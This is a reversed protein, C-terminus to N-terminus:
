VGLHVYQAWLLPQRPYRDRVSVVAEHLALAVARENAPHAASIRQYFMEAMRVSVQDDAPWLAGIVHPFGAVQFGSALHIVEDVLQEARNEATSCASLYAIRSRGLLAQSIDQVTLKDAIPPSSPQEGPRQLILYSNSPDKIESSGHCAFHAMDCDALHELVDQRSPYDLPQVSHTSTLADTIVSLEETVSKLAGVPKGDVNPTTPMLAVLLEPKKVTLEQLASARKRAYGLARITPTYSSIIYTYANAKSGFLHDGAAHFPLSSALGTGIWWVRPLDTAQPEKLGLATLIPEVCARWLWNLFERCLSNKEGKERRRKWRTPEKKIWDQVEEKKLAPLHLVQISSPSVLIADSRQDAVNVVVIPGDVARSQLEEATPGRFFSEQGPLKRIEQLVEDLEKVQRDRRSVLDQRSAVDGISASRSIEDRLKEFRAAQQPYEAALESIDSRDEILLGLIVGRGLELLELARAASDGAQISLACTEVAFDSFEATIRQQDDRGLLRTNTKHLVDLVQMGVKVGRSYEGRDQFKVMLQAAAAMRSTPDGLPDNVSRSYLDITEDEWPPTWRAGDITVEFKGGFDFTYALTYLRALNLMINSQHVHNEPVSNAADQVFLLAAELDDRNRTQEARERLLWGNNVAYGPWDPHQRPLRKVAEAQYRIATNLDDLDKHQWYRSRYASGLSNLWTAPVDDPPPMLGVAETLLTLAEESQADQGGPQREPLKLLKAGINHKTLNLLFGDPNYELASRTVRIAERLDDVRNIRDFRDELRNGLNNLYIVKLRPRTTAAVADLLLSIALSIDERNAKRKAQSQLGNAYTDLIAARDEAYGNSVVDLNRRCIEISETLFDLNHDLSYAKQLYSALKGSWFLLEETDSPAHDLVMRLTQCGQDLDAMSRQLEFREFYMDSVLYLVRSRKLNREHPDDSDLEEQRKTRLPINSIRIMFNVAETAYPDNELLFDLTQNLTLLANIMHMPNLTLRFQDLLMTHYTRLIESRRPYSRLPPILEASIRAMQIATQLTELEHTERYQNLHLVAHNHFVEILAADGTSESATPAGPFSRRYVTTNIVTWLTQVTGVFHQLLRGPVHLVSTLLGWISRFISIEPM